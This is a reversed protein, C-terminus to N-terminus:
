AARRFELLVATGGGEPRVLLMHSIAQMLVLGRGSIASTPPPAQASSPCMADPGGEDVVRVTAHGPTAEFGVRVSGGPWSGHVVANAVAENAALVVPWSDKDHWGTLYLAHEVADRAVRVADLTAPLRLEGAIDDIEPLLATASM